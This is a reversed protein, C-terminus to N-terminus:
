SSIAAAVFLVTNVYVGSRNYRMIVARRAEEDGMPGRWGSESLYRAVSFVADAKSFLDIRGDGDGDVAFQSINSPMFQGYGIAGYISGPFSVPDLGNDWAYVLLARLEDFAWRGRQSAQDGLFARAEANTDLDSLREAVLGFDASAAMSALVAAAKHRGFFRGYGTEVWMISAVLPGPVGYRREMADFLPKDALYLAKIDRLASASTFQQHTASRSPAAPAPPRYKSLSRVGQTAALTRLRLEIAETVRGDAPLDRSRQFDQLVKRTGSGFRGDIALDFGLRWLSEQVSKTLDSRFLIGYLERLKTEMPSPTFSLGPSSLFAEVKARPLGSAVLRGGLGAWPRPVAQSLDPGPDDPYAAEGPAQDQGPGPRPGAVVCGALAAALVAAAALLFHGRMNVVKGATEGVVKGATKGVVKGATKGGKEGGKVIGGAAGEQGGGFGSPTDPGPRAGGAEV